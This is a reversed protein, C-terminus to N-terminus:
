RAARRIALTVRQKIEHSFWWALRHRHQHQHHLCGAPGPSFRSSTPVNVCLLAAAPTRGGREPGRRGGSPGTISVKSPVESFRDMNVPWKIECNTQRGSNGRLCTFINQWCHPLSQSWGLASKRSLSRAMLWKEKEKKKKKKQDLINRPLAFSM